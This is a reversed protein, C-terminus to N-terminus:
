KEPKMEAKEKGTDVKKKAPAKRTKSKDKSAQKDTEVSKKM